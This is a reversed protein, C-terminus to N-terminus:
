QQVEEGFMTRSRFKLRYLRLSEPRPKPTWWQGVSKGSRSKGLAGLSFGLDDQYADEEIEGFNMRNAAKRVETLGLREKM